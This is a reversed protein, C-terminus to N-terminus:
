QFRGVIKDEHVGRVSIKVAFCPCNYGALPCILHTLNALLTYFVLLYLTGLVEPDPLPVQRYANYRPLIRLPLESHWGFTGQM